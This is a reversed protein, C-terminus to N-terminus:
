CRKASLMPGYPVKLRKVYLIKHSCLFISGSLIAKVHINHAQMTLSHRGPPTHTTLHWLAGEARFGPEWSDRPVLHPLKPLLPQSNTIVSSIVTFVFLCDWISQLLPLCHKAQRNVPKVYYKRLRPVTDIESLVIPLQPLLTNDVPDALSIPLKTLPQLYGRPRQIQKSQLARKPASLSRPCVPV